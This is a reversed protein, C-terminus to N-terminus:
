TWNASSSVAERQEFPRISHQANMMVCLLFFFWIPHLSRVLPSEVLNYVVFIFFFIQAKSTVAYKILRFYYLVIRRIKSNLPSNPNQDRRLDYFSIGKLQVVESSAMPDNGILDVEIGARALARALALQYHKEGGGTLLALRTARRDVLSRSEV